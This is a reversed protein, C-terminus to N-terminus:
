RSRREAQNGANRRGGSPTMPEGSIRCGQSCEPPVVMTAQSWGDEDIRLYMTCRSNKTFVYQQVAVAEGAENENTEVGMWWCPQISATGKEHVECAGAKDFKFSVIGPRLYRVELAQRDARHNRTFYMVSHPPRPMALHPEREGCLQSGGAATRPAPAMLTTAIFVSQLAKVIKMADDGGDAAGAEMVECDFYTPL